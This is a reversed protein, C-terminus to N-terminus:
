GFNRVFFEGLHSQVQQWDVVVDRGTIKRQKKIICNDSVSKRQKMDGLRFLIKFCLFLRFFSPCMFSRCNSFCSVHFNSCCCSLFHIRLFDRQCLWIHALLSHIVLIVAADYSCIRNVCIRCERTIWCCSQGYASGCVITHMTEITNTTPCVRM